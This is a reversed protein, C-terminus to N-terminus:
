LSSANLATKPVNCSLARTKSIFWMISMGSPWDIFSKKRTTWLCVHTVKDSSVCDEKPNDSSNKPWPVKIKSQKWVYVLACTHTPSPPKIYLALRIAGNFDSFHVFSILFSMIGWTTCRFSLSIKLLFFLLLSHGFTNVPIKTTRKAWALRLPGRRRVCM